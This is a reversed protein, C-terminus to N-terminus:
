NIAWCESMCPIADVRDKFPNPDVGAMAVTAYSGLLFIITVSLVIVKKM